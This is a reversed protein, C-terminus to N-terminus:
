FTVTFSHNNHQFSYEIDFKYYQCIHKALTLGLGMGKSNKSKQFRQFISTPLASSTGTNTFILHKIGLDIQINGKQFNHRIANTFLNNILIEFLYGDAKIFLEEGHYTITLEKNEILEQFQKMKNLVVISVEIVDKDKFLKNDLKALLLLSQNLRTSKKISTYIETIQSLQESTLNDDQILNDLKTTVLALPTMLEHSANETLEKLNLYDNNVRKSMEEIAHNLENFENVSSKEKKFESTNSINFQKIEILTRYFPTWLGRLLFRNTLFLIVVLSILLLLTIISIVKILYLNGSRSITIIVKYHTSKNKLLAEVARGPEVTNGVPNKYATDFFRRKLTQASTVSFIAHDKDLDYQQPDHGGIDIFEQAERLQMELNQDLQQQAILNIAFFYFIGGSFLVLLSIYISSRTYHDALKM